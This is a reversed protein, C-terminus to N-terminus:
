VRQIRVVHAPIIQDAGADGVPFITLRVSPEVIATQLRAMTEDDVTVQSGSSLEITYPM